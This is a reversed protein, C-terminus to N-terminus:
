PPVPAPTSPYGCEGFWGHADSATATALAEKWAEVLAAVSRAKAKRLHAKAKSWLKEIPNFDPSYPPLYVAHAGHEKLWADVRTDKHVSLHDMVVRDGASLTPVLVQELYALFSDTDCAGDLTMAAISGDLRLAGIVTLREWHGHPVAEIVREGPAARGYRRTM